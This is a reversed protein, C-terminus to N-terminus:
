AQTATSIAARPAATGFWARRYVADMRAGVADLDHYRRVFEVGRRGLELRRAPDLVLERLVDVLQDPDTSVIPCEAWEPHWPAFHDNLYCVVPKSLAMAEIAFLAYAGILFQDAVIDARAYDRKADANPKGEVLVLEVPLGERRLTEVADVLFRTGKYHRHNPSHVITVVGDDTEEAPPWDRQEIPYLFVGDVRPLHEVLDACGLIEDAWRGFVAMRSRVSREDRDESGVPVDTYANWRGLRRTESALRADGGYPYVVVRKGSLKLLPLELRWLPTRGLLGGDFFFAFLDFRLLAWAFVLYPLALRVVAPKETLDLAIDFDDRSNIRYRDYVLTTSEYGRM